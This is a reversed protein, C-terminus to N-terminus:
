PDTSIGTVLTEEFFPTILVGGDGKKQEIPTCPASLWLRRLEVPISAGEREHAVEVVGSAM